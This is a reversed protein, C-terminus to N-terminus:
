NELGCLILEKSYPLSKVWEGFTDVWEEKLKHPNYVRQIYMNRIEAYNTNVTRLQLLGEPLLQKARRILKVKEKPNIEEIFKTRIYNLRTIIIDMVDEDEVDYIFMDKDIKTTNHLLRHMTSCSNKTNFHYTDFESWFYRPMDLDAWVQITRLFKSHEGGSKILAQARALDSNGIYFRPFLDERIYSDSKDWSNMPNRMSKLAPSLGSVELITIKM